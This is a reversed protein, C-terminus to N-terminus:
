AGESRLRVAAGQWGDWQAIQLAVECQRYVDRAMRSKKRQRAVRTAIQVLTRRLIREM